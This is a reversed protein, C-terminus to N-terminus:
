RLDAPNNRRIRDARAAAAYIAGLSVGAWLALAELTLADPRLFAQGRLAQSLLIAFLSFYSAAIVFTLRVRVPDPLSRRGALWVVLPLMQIAHLGLFHPVRLDGHDRSWGVGALGPDGDPAGVTHAGSIPLAHTVRAEARQASTPQVMLGGTSAGVISILLGLRLAWGLARDEFPQRWLAVAVAVSLLTQILIAVGMAGFLLADMPTAVNFHSTTGRWAQLYVIAVELVLIAATSRGVLRRMKAWAPLYTFIWTLTVMYILTSVAFKAPKMWAPMGGITRPDLVLGSVAFALAGVMMVSSGILAADTEWLKKAVKNMTKRRLAVAVERGQMESTTTTLM